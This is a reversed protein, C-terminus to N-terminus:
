LLVNYLTVFPVPQQMQQQEQHLEIKNTAYLIDLAAVAVLWLFCGIASRTVYTRMQPQEKLSSKM